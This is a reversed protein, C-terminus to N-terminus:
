RGPMHEVKREALLIGCAAEDDVRGDLIPSARHPLEVVGLPVERPLVLEVAHLKRRVNGLRRM